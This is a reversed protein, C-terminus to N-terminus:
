LVSYLECNSRRRILGWINFYVRGLQNYHSAGNYCGWHKTSLDCLLRETYMVRQSCQCTQISTVRLGSLSKLDELHIYTISAKGKRNSVRSFTHRSCSIIIDEVHTKLYFYYCLVFCLTSVSLFFRIDTSYKNCDDKFIIINARGQTTCHNSCYGACQRTVPKIGRDFAHVQAAPKIGTELHPHTSALLWHTEKMNINKERKGGERVGERFLLSFFLSM